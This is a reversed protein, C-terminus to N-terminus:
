VPDLFALPMTVPTAAGLIDIKIVADPGTIADIVSCHDKLIGQAVIVPQGVALTKGIITEAKAGEMARLRAVDHSRLSGVVGSVQEVEHILRHPNDTEVIVYRPALPVTIVRKKKGHRYARKVRDETPTWARVGAREIGQIAKREGQPTTRLLSTSM